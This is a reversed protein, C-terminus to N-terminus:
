NRLDVDHVSKHRVQANIKALQPEKEFLALVERWSFDDRNDFRRYIERVLELDEATDVTWRYAGFDPAHNLIYTKFRGPKEYFYPMVHERQHPQDAEKWARELGTYSCVEVDLGIPYTRKWPPPLRNAVFDYAHDLPFDLDVPQTQNATSHPAGVAKEWFFARLTEDIVDPDILPCDATLRVIVDGGYVSATQYFRDLVDFQSGRFCSYKRNICFDALRDDCYDRTTAVVVQDVLKARRAREFVRALMPQGGIDLLVKGPLRTSSLRAQIIVLIKPKTSPSPTSM